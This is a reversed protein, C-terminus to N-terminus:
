RGAVSRRKMREQRIGFVRGCEFVFRSGWAVLMETHQPNDRLSPLESNFHKAYAIFLAVPDDGEPLVYDAVKDELALMEAATIRPRATIKRM